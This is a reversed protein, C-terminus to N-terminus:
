KSVKGRMNEVSQKLASTINNPPLTKEFSAVQAGFTKVQATMEDADLEEFRGETWEKV